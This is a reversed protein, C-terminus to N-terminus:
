DRKKKKFIKSWLGRPKKKPKRKDEEDDEEEEEDDDEDEDDDDDDDDEDGGGGGGGRNQHRGEIGQMEFDIQNRPIVQGVDKFNFVFCENLRDNNGKRDKKMAEYNGFKHLLRMENGDFVFLKIPAADPLDAKIFDNQLVQKAFTFKVRGKKDTQIEHTKQVGGVNYVIIIKYHSHPLIRYRNDIAGVEPGVVFM